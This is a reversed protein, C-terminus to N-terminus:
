FLISDDSCFRGTAEMEKVKEIAIAFDFAKRTLDSQEVKNTSIHDHDCDGGEGAAATDDDASSCDEHLRAHSQM